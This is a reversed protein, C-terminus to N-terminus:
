QHKWTASINLCPLPVPYPRIKGETNGYGVGFCKDTVRSMDLLSSFNFGTVTESPNSYGRRM